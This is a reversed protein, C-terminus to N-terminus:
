LIKRFWFWKRRLPHKTEAISILKKLGSFYLDQGLGSEWYVNSNRQGRQQLQLNTSVGRKGGQRPCLAGKFWTNASALSMTFINRMQVGIGGSNPSSQDLKQPAPWGSPFPHLQGSARCLPLDLAARPTFAWGRCRVMGLGTDSVLALPWHTVPNHWCQRGQGRM